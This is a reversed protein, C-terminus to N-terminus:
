QLNELEIEEEHKAIKVVQIQDRFLENKTENIEM